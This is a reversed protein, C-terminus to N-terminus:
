AVLGHPLKTPVNAFDSVAGFLKTFDKFVDGILCDTLDSRMDPHSKILDAFSFSDDYFAYVLARMSEIGHCLEKGYPEFQKASYDKLILANSIADAAM